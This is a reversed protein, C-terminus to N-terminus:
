KAEFGEVWANKFEKEPDTTLNLGNVGTAMSLLNAKAEAKKQDPLNDLEEQTILQYGDPTKVTASKLDGLTRNSPDLKYGTLGAADAQLLLRIRLQDYAKQAAEDQLSAEDQASSAWAKEAEASLRKILDSVVWGAPKGVGSSSALGALEGTPYEALEIWAKVYEDQSKAAELGGTGLAHAISGEVKFWEGAARELVDHDSGTPLAGSEARTVAGRFDLLSQDDRGIVGIVKDLMHKSFYPGTASSGYVDTFEHKWLPSAPDQDTLNDAYSDVVSPLYTELMHELYPAAEVGQQGREVGFDSRGALAALGHGAIEATEEPHQRKIGPGTSAADLASAVGALGTGGYSHSGAWTDIRTSDDHFFEYAATHNDGLAHMLVADTQYFWPVEEVDVLSPLFRPPGFYTWSYNLGSDISKKNHRDMEQTAGLVLDDRFPSSDIFLWNLAENYGDLRFYESEPDGNVAAGVLREGFTEAEQPTWKWSASHLGQRLRQMLAAAEAKRDESANSYLGVVAGVEDTLALTGDPGLGDYFGAMVDGNSYWRDMANRLATVQPGNDQAGDLAIQSGVAAMTQGLETRAEELTDAEPGSAEFTVSGDPAFAHEDGSNILEITDAKARAFSSADRLDQVYDPVSCLDSTSVQLSNLMPTYFGHGYGLDDAMSSLSDAVNRLSTINAKITTM